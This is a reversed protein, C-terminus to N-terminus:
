QFASCTLRSNKQKKNAKRRRKFRGKDSDSEVTPNICWNLFPPYNLTVPGEIGRKRAARGLDDRPVAM